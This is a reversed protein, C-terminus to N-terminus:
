NPGTQGKLLSRIIGPLKDIDGVPIPNPRRVDVLRAFIEGNERVWCRLVLSLRKSQDLDSDLNSEPKLEKM